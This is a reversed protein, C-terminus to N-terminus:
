SWTVLRPSRIAMKQTTRNSTVYLRIVLFAVNFALWIGILFGVTATVNQAGTGRILLV